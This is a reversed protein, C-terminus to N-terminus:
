NEDGSRIIVQGEGGGRSRFQEQMKKRFETQKVQYEEQTILKAKKPLIFESDKVKVYEIANAYYKMRKNEVGLVVGETWLAPVPSANFPLETTYWIVNEVNNAIIIAKKCNFGAIKKTEDTNKVEASKSGLKNELLLQEGNMEFSETVKNEGFKFYVERDTNSGFRMIRGETNGAGPIEEDIISKQLKAGTPNFELEFKNTITRGSGANVSLNEASKKMTDTATGTRPSPGGLTMVQTYYIVGSTKKQAFVYTTLACYFCVLVLFQKTM